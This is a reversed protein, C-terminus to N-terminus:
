TENTDSGALWSVLRRFLVPYYDWKLFAQSAWHATCDTTLAAVRGKEWTGIVLLPDDDVTALVHAHTKPSVRNYGLVYPWRSPVGALIPSDPDNVLPEVGDPRELREDYHGIAVPLVRALPSVAYRARGGFGSYSLNGGITLLGRGSAVWDAVVNLKRVGREGRLCEDTLDFSDAGVDSLIIADYEELEKAASPFSEAVEHAPVRSVRIDGQELKKVFDQAGLEYRPQVFTDAGKIHEGVTIWSEGVLLVHCSM